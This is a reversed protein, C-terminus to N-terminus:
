VFFIMVFENEPSMDLIRGLLNPREKYHAHAVRKDLFDVNSFCYWPLHLCLVNGSPQHANTFSTGHSFYLFLNRAVV